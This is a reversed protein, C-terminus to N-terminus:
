CRRCAACMVLRGCLHLAPVHQGNLGADAHSAAACSRRAAADAGCDTRVGCLQQAFRAGCNAVEWVAERSRPGKPHRWRRAASPSAPSDYWEGLGVTPIGLRGPGSQALVPLASLRARRGGRRRRTRTCRRHGCPSRAGSLLRLSRRSCSAQPARGRSPPRPRSPHWGPPAGGASADSCVPERQREIRAALGGAHM